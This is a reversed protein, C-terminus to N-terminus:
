EWTINTWPGFVTGLSSSTLGLKTMFGKAKGTLGNNTVSQGLRTLMSYCNPSGGGALPAFAAELREISGSFGSYVGNINVQSLLNSFNFNARFMLSNAEFVIDANVGAFANEFSTSYTYGTLDIWGARVLKLSKCGNFIGLMSNLVKVKPFLKAPVEVIATCGMFVYASGNYLKSSDFWGPRLTVLATCNTFMYNIYILKTMKSFATAPVDTLKICSEFLNNMTTVSTMDNFLNAPISAVMSYAFMSEITTCNTFGALENGSLTALKSGGFLGVASTVKGAFSAFLKEPIATLGCPYTDRYGGFLNDINSVNTLASFLNAPVSTLLTCSYFLGSLSTVQGPNPMNSFLKEPVTTIKSFAFMGAVTSLNRCNRFLTEPINAIPAGYTSWSAGGFFFAMSTVNSLSDFAGEEVANFPCGLFARVANTLSVLDAMIEKTFTVPSSFRSNTSCLEFASRMNTLATLGKLIGIPFKSVRPTNYFASSLDTLKKCNRLLTEPLDTMSSCNMFAYSLTQLNVLTSFLNAPIGVIATNTFSNSLDTLRVNTKFLDAPIATIKTSSFIGSALIVSVCDTLLNAPIETIGTRSLASSLDTVASCGAFLDSPVQSLSSCAYLIGVMNGCTKGAHKFVDSSIAALSNCIYFMGYMTTIESSSPFAGEEVESVSSQRFAYDWQGSLTAKSFAGAKISMLRSGQFARSAGIITQNDFLGSTIEMVNKNAFLSSIDIPIRNKQFADAEIWIASSAQVSNIFGLLTDVIGDQTVEYITGIPYDLNNSLQPEIGGSTVMAGTGFPISSVVRIRMEGAAVAQPLTVSVYYLGSSALKFIPSTKTGAIYVDFLTPTPSVASRVYGINVTRNAALTPVVVSFDLKASPPSYVRVTTSGTFRLSSSAATMGMSVMGSTMLDLPFTLTTDTEDLVIANCRHFERAFAAFDAYISAPIRLEGFQASLASLSVRTYTATVTATGMLPKGNTVPSLTVKSDGGVATINDKTAPLAFKRLLSDAVISIGDTDFDNLM